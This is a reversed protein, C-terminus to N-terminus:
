AVPDGQHRGTKAGVAGPLKRLELNKPTRTFEPGQGIQAGTLGLQELHGLPKKQELNQSPRQFDLSEIWRPIDTEVSGPSQQPGLNGIFVWFGLNGAPEWSSLSRALRLM